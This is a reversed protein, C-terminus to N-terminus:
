GGAPDDIWVVLLGLGEFRWGSTATTSAEAPEYSFRIPQFFLASDFRLAIIRAEAASVPSLRELWTAARQPYPALHTDLSALWPRSQREPPVFTILACTPRKVGNVVSFKLQYGLPCTGNTPAVTSPMSGTSTAPCGMGTTALGALAYYQCRTALPLSNVDRNTDGSLALLKNYSSTPARVATSGTARRQYTTGSRSHVERLSGKHVLALAKMVRRADTTLVAVEHIGTASATPSAGSGARIKAAQAPLGVALFVACCLARLLYESSAKM